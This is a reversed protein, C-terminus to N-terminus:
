KGLNIWIIVETSTGRGGGGEGELIHQKEWGGLALHTLGKCLHKVGEQLETERSKFAGLHLNFPTHNEQKKISKSFAVNFDATLEM